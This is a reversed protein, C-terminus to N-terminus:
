PFTGRHGKKMDPTKHDDGVNLRQERNEKLKNEDVNGAPDIADAEKGAGQAGPQQRRTQQAVATQQDIDSGKLKETM